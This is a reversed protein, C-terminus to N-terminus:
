RRTLVCYQRNTNQKTSSEFKIEDDHIQRHLHFKDKPASSDESNHLEDIADNRKRVSRQIQEEIEM